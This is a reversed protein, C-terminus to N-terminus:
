DLKLQQSIQFFYFLCLLFDLFTGFPFAFLCTIFMEVIVCPWSVYCDGAITAHSNDRHLLSTEARSPQSVQVTHATRSPVKGRFPLDRSDAGTVHLSSLPDSAPPPGNQELYVVIKNM